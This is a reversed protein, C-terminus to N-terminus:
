IYKCEKPFLRFVLPLSSDKYCEVREEEEITSIKKLITLLYRITSYYLYMPYFARKNPPLSNGDAHKEFWNEFQCINSIDGGTTLILARLTKQVELRNVLNSWLIVFFVRELNPCDDVLVEPLRKM